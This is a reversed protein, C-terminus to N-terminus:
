NHGVRIKIGYIEAGPFGEAGTIEYVMELTLFGSNPGLRHPPNLTYTQTGAHPTSDNILMTSNGPGRSEVLGTYTFIGYDTDHCRYIIQVSKISVSQGYLSGPLSIPYHVVNDFYFNDKVSLKWLDREVGADNEFGIGATGPIFIYSDADSQIIGTGEAKFAVGNTNKAVVGVGGFSRAEGVVGYNVGSSATAHGYVGYGWTSDAQGVVAYNPGGVGQFNVKGFVGSGYMAASEGYVGTADGWYASAIGSVGSGNGSASEGRVGVTEGTTATALGRVGAGSTSVSQGAVGASNGNTKAAYGFVGNGNAYGSAGYVGSGHSSEGWVGAAVSGFFYPFGSGDGQQGYVGAAFTGSTNTVGLGIGWSASGGWKSGFHQHDSRAATDAAGSSGFNVSFQNAGSLSLGAGATYAAGNDVGDAFGVPIGSINAWDLAGPALNNAQVAGSALKSGTIAGDAVTAAISANDANSANQAFMAQPTSHLAQRPSLHIWPNLANNSNTRVGIQLWRAEGKFANTGFEGHSNLEVTFRGNTVPVAGFISFTGLVTGNTADDYLNFIMDYAGNAPAGGDNLHGQYTFGTGMPAAHIGAATMAALGLTTLLKKMVTQCNKTPSHLLTLLLNKMIHTEM